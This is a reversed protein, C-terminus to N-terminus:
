QPVCFVRAPALLGERPYITADPKLLAIRERVQDINSHTSIVVHKVAMRSLESSALVDIGFRKSGVLTPNDDFIGTVREPHSLIFHGQYELDNGAGFFAVQEGAKLVLRDTDPLHEPMPAELGAHYSTSHSRLGPCTLELMRELEPIDRVLLTSGFDSASLDFGRLGRAQAHERVRLWGTDMTRLGVDHFYVVCRDALRDAIGLYDLMIQEDTHDGDVLVFGYQDSRCAKDLDQPSFGRTIHIDLGLREAVRRTLLTGTDSGRSTEADIADLPHPKLLEAILLTSIGHSNGIVLSPAPGLCEATLRIFWADRLSIGVHRHSPPEHRWFPRWEDLPTVGTALRAPSGMEFAFGEGHYAQVIRPLMRGYEKAVPVSLQCSGHVFRYEVPNVDSRREIHHLLELHRTMRGDLRTGRMKSWWLIEKQWNGIALLREGVGAILTEAVALVPGLFADRSRPGILKMHISPGAFKYGLVPKRVHQINAAAGSELQEVVDRRHARIDLAEILGSSYRRGLPESGGAHIMRHIEFLWRHLRVPSKIKNNRSIHDLVQDVRVRHEFHDLTKAM